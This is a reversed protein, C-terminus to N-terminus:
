LASSVWITEWGTGVWEPPCANMTRCSRILGSVQDATFPPQGPRPVVPAVSAFVEYGHGNVIHSLQTGDCLLSTERHLAGPANIVNVIFMATVGEPVPIPVTPEIPAVIPPATIAPDFLGSMLDVRYADGCCSTYDVDSHSLPREPTTGAEAHWEAFIQAVSDCAKVSARVGTPGILLVSGTWDNVNDGLTGNLDNWKRGPNSAMNLDTGRIEWRTGDAPHRADSVVAYGYGLSFRRTAMYDSQMRRLYAAINTPTVDREVGEHHVVGRRFPARRLPGTVPKAPDQWSTRPLATVM